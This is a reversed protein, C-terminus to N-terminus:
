LDLYLYSCSALLLRVIASVFYDTAIHSKKELGLDYISNYCKTCLVSVWSLRVLDGIASQEKASLCQVPFQNSTNANELM